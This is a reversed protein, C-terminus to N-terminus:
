SGRAGYSYIVLMLGDISANDIKQVGPGRFLYKPPNNIDAPSVSGVIWSVGDPRKEVITRVVGDNCVVTDGVELDKGDRFFM